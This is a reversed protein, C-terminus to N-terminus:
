NENLRRFESVPLSLEIFLDLSNRAMYWIGAAIKAPDHISCHDIFFDKIGDDTLTPAHFARAVNRILTDVPFLGRLEGRDANSALRYGSILCLDQIVLASIKEGIYRVKGDGSILYQYAARPGGADLLSKLHILINGIRSALDIVGGIMELDKSNNLPLAAPSTKLFRTSHEKLHPCLAQLLDANREPPANLCGCSIHAIRELHNGINTTALDNALRQLPDRDPAPASSLHAMLVNQAYLFYRNSLGFGRGRQFASGMVFWLASRPNQLLEDVDYGSLHDHRYRDGLWELNSMVKETLLSKNENM